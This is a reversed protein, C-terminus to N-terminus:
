LLKMIFKIIYNLNEEYEAAIQINFRNYIKIKFGSRLEM